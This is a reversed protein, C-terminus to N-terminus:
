TRRRAMATTRDRQTEADRRSDATRDKFKLFAILLARVFFWPCERADGPRILGRRTSAILSAVM